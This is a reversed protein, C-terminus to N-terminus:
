KSLFADIDEEMLRQYVQAVMAVDDRSPRTIHTETPLCESPADDRYWETAFEYRMISKPDFDTLALDNSQEMRELNFEADARSWFNPAHELLTLVGPRNGRGDRVAKQADDLTLEYGVDDELRLAGGCDSTPHQHEHRLGLAHGFEHYVIKKWDAPLPSYGHFGELNMSAVHPPTLVPNTSDTGIMSWYGLGPEFSIRIDAAYTTDEHTWTHFVFGDAEDTGFDFNLAGRIRYPDFFGRKPRHADTQENTLNAWDQAVSMIERRVAPSGGNFAVRIPRLYTGRYARETSLATPQGPEDPVCIELATGEDLDASFGRPCRESGKLFPTRNLCKHLEREASRLRSSRYNNSRRVDAREKVARPSFEGSMGEIFTKDLPADSVILPTETLGDQQKLERIHAEARKPEATELLLPELEDVRAQYDAHCTSKWEDALQFPQAPPEASTDAYGAGILLLGAIWVLYARFRM